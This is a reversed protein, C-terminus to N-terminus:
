NGGRGLTGMADINMKKGGPMIIDGPNQGAECPGVWRATIKMTQESMGMVAPEYKITTEGAYRSTFDGSFVTKSIMRTGGSTCDSESIVKGAEKRFENKACDGQGISKGMQMMKADSAADVCQQITHGVSLGKMSTQIEWLGPKRKPHDQALSVIPLM